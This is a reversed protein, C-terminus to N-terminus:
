WVKGEEIMPVYDDATAMCFGCAAVAVTLILKRMLM